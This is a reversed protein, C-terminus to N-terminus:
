KGSKTVAMQRPNMKPKKNKKKKKLNIKNIQKKNNNNKIIKFYQILQAM